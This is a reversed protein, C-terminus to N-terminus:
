VINAVQWFLNKKTTTPGGNPRVIYFDKTGLKLSGKSVIVYYEWGQSIAYRYFLRQIINDAGRNWGKVEVVIKRGKYEFYFDPTYIRENIIWYPSYPLHILPSWEFEIYEYKFEINRKTLENAFREELNSRYNTM